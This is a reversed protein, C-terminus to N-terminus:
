VENERLQIVYHQFRIGPNSGDQVIRTRLLFVRGPRDLIPFRMDRGGQRLQLHGPSPSGTVYRPNQPRRGM